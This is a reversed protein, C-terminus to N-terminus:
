KKNSSVIMYFTEGQKIMGLDFRAREEIAAYGRKLDLVEENLRHNRNELIRNQTVQQEVKDQLRWVESFSGSGIWLRYQLGILILLMVSWLLKM